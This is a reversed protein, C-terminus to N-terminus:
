NNKFIGRKKAISSLFKKDKFESFDYSEGKKLKYTGLAFEEQSFSKKRKGSSDIVYINAPVKWVTGDLDFLHIVNKNSITNELPKLKSPNFSKIDYVKVNPINANKVIELNKEEDDYFKVSSFKNSYHRIVNLKKEASDKGEYTGASDNVFHIDNADISKGLSDELRKILASHNEKGARATLIGIPEGKLVARKAAIFGPMRGRTKLEEEIVNQFYEFLSIM